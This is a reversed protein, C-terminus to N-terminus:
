SQVSKLKPLHSKQVPLNPLQPLLTGPPLRCRPPRQKTQQLRSLHGAHLRHGPMPSHPPTRPRTQPQFRQKQPQGQLQRRTGHFPVPILHRRHTYTPLILNIYRTLYFPYKPTPLLPLFIIKLNEIIQPNHYFFDIQNIYATYYIQITYSRVSEDHKIKAPEPYNKYKRFKKQM